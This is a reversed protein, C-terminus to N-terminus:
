HLAVNKTGNMFDRVADRSKDFGEPTNLFAASHRSIFERMHQSDKALPHKDDFEGRSDAEAVSLALVGASMIEFFAAIQFLTVPCYNPGTFTKVLTIAADLAQANTGCNCLNQETDIDGNKM